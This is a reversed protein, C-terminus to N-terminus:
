PPAEHAQPPAPALQRCPQACGGSLPRDRVLRHLDQGALALLVRWAGCGRDLPSRGCHADGPYALRGGVWCGQKARVRQSGDYTDNQTAGTVGDATGAKRGETPERGREHRLSVARAPLIDEGVSLNGRPSKHGFKRSSRAQSSRLIERGRVETFLSGPRRLLSCEEAISRTRERM